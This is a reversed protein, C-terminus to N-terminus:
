AGGGVGNVSAWDAPGSTSFVIPGTEMARGDLAITGGGGIVWPGNVTEWLDGTLVNRFRKSDPIPTGPTGSALFSSTESRTAGKRETNTISALIELFAGAANAPDLVQSISQALQQLKAERESAIGVINGLASGEGVKVNAGLDARLLTEWELRIEDLSQATLGASTIALAM